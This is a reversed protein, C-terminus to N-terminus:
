NPAPCRDPDSFSVFTTSTASLGTSLDTVKCSINASQYCNVNYSFVQFPANTQLVGNVRWEISRPILGGDGPFVPNVSFIYEARGFPFSIEEITIGGPLTPPLAGGVEVKKTITQSVGTNQDTVTCKVSLSGYYDGNLLVGMSPTTATHLLAGAREIRWNYSYSGSGTTNIIDFLTTRGLTVDVNGPGTMSGASFAPHVTLERSSVSTSGTVVDTLTCTATVTGQHLLAFVPRATASTFTEQGSVAPSFQWTYSYNGSGESGTVSLVAERGVNVQSSGSISSIQVANYVTLPMTQTITRNLAVDTITCSVTVPGVYTADFVREVSPGTATGPPQGSRTFNWAYTFNGSGGTANVSFTVPSGTLAWSSSATIGSVAVPAYVSVEYIAERVIGTVNDTVTCRLINTGRFGSNFNVLYPNGSLSISQQGSALEFQWRYSYDGSGTLVEIRYTGQENDFVTSPGTIEGLTLGAHTVPEGKYHYFYQAQLHANLDKVAKLRNRDDYEYYTTLGSADTMSSMGILPDYTYTTVMAQPLATRLKALESRLAASTSPDELLAMNLNVSPGTAEAYTANEIKAVPYQGNYGWLISVKIANDITYELINGKQDYKDYYVKRCPGESYGQHNLRSCFIERELLTLNNLEPFKKYEKNNDLFVQGDKEERVRIPDNIRNESILPSGFSPYQYSTEMSGGDSLNQITESVLRNLADYNYVVSNEIIGSDFHNKNITSKLVSERGMLPYYVFLYENFVRLILPTYLITTELWNSRGPFAIPKVNYSLSPTYSKVNYTNIVEKLITTEEDFSEQKLLLGNDLETGRVANGFLDLYSSRIVGVTSIKNRLSIDPENSFYSIIKGKSQGSSLDIESMEVRSYGVYNGNSLPDSQYINTAFSTIKSGTSPVVFWTNQNAQYLYQSSYSDGDEYPRFPALHKGGSYFYKKSYVGNIGSSDIIEKIRLGFGRSMIQTNSNSVQLTLNAEIIGGVTDPFSCSDDYNVAVAYLADPELSVNFDYWSVAENYLVKQYTLEAGPIGSTEYTEWFLRKGEDSNLYSFKRNEPVKVVKLWSANYSCSAVYQLVRTAGMLNNTGSLTQIAIMQDPINDANNVDFLRFKKTMDRGQNGYNPFLYNDFENLEYFFKTTGGTPHKIMELMGAKANDPHASKNVRGEIDQKMSLAWAPIFNENKYFRFPNYFMSENHLGNYYGWYDRSLSNKLPLKVSNYYFNYDKHDIVLTHLRLRKSLHDAGQSETEFYDYEFKLDHITDQKHSIVLNDLRRAYPLDVRDSTLFSLKTGEYTIEKLVSREEILDSKYRTARIHKGTDAIHGLLWLTGNIHSTNDPGVFNPPIPITYNTHQFHNTDVVNIIDLHGSHGSTKQISQLKQYTFHITHGRTDEIKTIKWNRSAYKFNDNFLSENQVINVFPNYGTDNQEFTNSTLAAYPNTLPLERLEEEFYYKMGDPATIVWNFSNNGIDNVTIKYNRKNLVEINGHKPNIFFKLSHGFFSATFLDVEIDINSGRSMTLVQNYSFLTGNHPYYVGTKGHFGGETRVRAAYYENLHNFPNASPFQIRDNGKDAGIPESYYSEPQPQVIYEPRYENYYDPVKVDVLLDNWGRTSQSIMGMNINWGLGVWSSEESVRIGNSHYSLNLPVQIDGHNINFLPISINPVGTYKSVPINGYKEIAYVEPSKPEQYKVNIQSFSLKFFFLLLAVLGTKTKAFFMNEKM